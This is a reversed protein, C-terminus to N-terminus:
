AVVVGIWIRETNGDGETDWSYESKSIERAIRWCGSMEKGKERGDDRRM